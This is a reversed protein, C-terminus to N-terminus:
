IYFLNDTWTRHLICYAQSQHVPIVWLSLVPFSTPPPKLIPFVHVGTASEHQHIAFGICYQLTFFFFLCNSKPLFAILFRSLTNFLLSMVKGAFTWITLATTKGTTIYSHLLQVMFFDSHQLVSVKSIHHQQLSKLMGQVFLLGFQDIRSSILGSYKNSPSISLSWYKPWRILLASENSFVRISPFVLLLLLLPCCHILYSSPIISEISLLRPLSSSVIYSMPAQHTITWSTAFLQVHSQSQICCICERMPINSLYFLLYHWKCCSKSSVSFQLVLYLLESLSHYIDCSIM